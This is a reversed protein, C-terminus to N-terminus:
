GPPLDGQRLAWAVLFAPVVILVAVAVVAVVWLGPLVLLAVGLVALAAILVAPRRSAPAGAALRRAFAPDAARERDAITEVIMRERDTLPSGAPLDPFPNM